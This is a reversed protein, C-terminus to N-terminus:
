GGASLLEAPPGEEVLRGGDLVIIRDMSRLTALRHAIAIMGGRGPRASWADLAARILAESTADISSTAEDLILVPPASLLTRAIGIRQREGGSLGSGREGLWTDYGHPQKLIFDHCDAQVAAEIIQQATAEPEAYAINEAITGRFLFPEQLVLGLSRRLEDKAIERIDVGDLTIRGEQPDYFRCLLQILSSKGSGSPGVIGVREGRGIRLSIDRIVPHHREYGFTVNEFAIEGRAPTVPVPQAPPKISEPTDLVEFIRGAQTTFQTFWNTLQPLAALPGYF